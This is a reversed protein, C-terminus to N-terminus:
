GHQVAIFNTPLLEPRYPGQGTEIDASYYIEELTLIEALHGGARKLIYDHGSSRKNNLRRLYNEMEGTKILRLPINPSDHIITGDAFYGQGFTVLPTSFDTINENIQGDIDSVGRQVNLFGDALLEVKEQDAVITEGQGNILVNIEGNNGSRGIIAKIRKHMYRDRSIGQLKGDRGNDQVITKENEKKQRILDMINGPLDPFGDGRPHFKRITEDMVTRFAGTLRVVAGDIEGISVNRDTPLIENGIEEALRRKFRTINMRSFDFVEIENNSQLAGRDTELLVAMHDSEYDLTRLGTGMTLPRIGLSTIFMDIYSRSTATCRTPGNTPRIMLSPSMDLWQRLVRGSTNIVDGGWDTHKANLDAGILAEDNGVLMEIANLSNSTLTESPRLYLSMFIIHGMNRRVRIATAEIGGFDVQLREGKWKESLCIATGGGARDARRDQRFVKYGPLTLIHRNSLKTEAILLVYFYM